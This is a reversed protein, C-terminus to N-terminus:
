RATAGELETGLADLWTSTGQERWSPAELGDLLADSETLVLTTDAGAPTLEVTTISVTALARDQSLTSTYILREDEVIDQYRSEFILTSGDQRRSQVRERGGVRFDLEHRADPEVFWRAKAVPEAWAVFVEHAPHAYHRELTFTSHVVSRDIM